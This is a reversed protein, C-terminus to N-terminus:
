SGRCPEQVDQLALVWVGVYGYFPDKADAYSKTDLEPLAGAPPVGLSQHVLAPMIQIQLEISPGGLNPSPRFM